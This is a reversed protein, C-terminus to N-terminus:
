LLWHPLYTLLQTELSLICSPIVIRRNYSSHNALVATLLRGMISNQLSDKEIIKRPMTQDGMWMYRLCKESVTWNTGLHRGANQYM